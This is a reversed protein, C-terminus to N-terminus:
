RSAAEGCGAGGSSCMQTYRMMASLAHQVYDIRVEQGDGAAPDEPGNDRQAPKTPTELAEPIGGRAIGSAVQARRLFGIGRGITERLETRFAARSGDDRIAHELALLGELRTAAPTTRADTGFAGDIAPDVKSERVSAQEDMMTQGLAIAHELMEQKPLPPAALEGYRPLFRDTAIMLWHDNPLKETGGRRSKVLHAIARAAADLWRPDYDVEYLMTLALIAEGPYYLSDFDPVYGTEDEYKSHFDGGPEEMFLIFRALSQMARVDELNGADPSARDSAGLKGLVGIIALAAGGLKASPRSGGEEGPDSWVAAIDPHDRLPRVYRSLLYRASRAMAADARSRAEPSKAQARYDALAYISGAHRLVNYKRPSGHRGDVFLRYEFRGDEGDVRTLYDAAEDIARPLSWVQAANAAKTSAHTRWPARAFIFLGSAVGVIAAALTLRRRM